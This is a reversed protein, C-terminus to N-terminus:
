RSPSSFSHSFSAVRGIELYTREIVDFFRHETRTIKVSRRNKENRKRIISEIFIREPAPAASIRLIGAAYEGGSYKGRQYLRRPNGGRQCFGDRTYCRGHDHGIRCAREYKGSALVEETEM